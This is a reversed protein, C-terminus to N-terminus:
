ASGRLSLRLLDAMEQAESKRPASRWDAHAINGSGIAVLTRALQRPANLPGSLVVFQSENESILMYSPTSAAYKLASGLDTFDQYDTYFTKAIISIQSKYSFLLAHAHFCHADHQDGDTRCVPVKGHETMLLPGRVRELSERLATLNAVSDPDTAAMDAMSQTHQYAVLMAYTPTIPGLGVMSYGSANTAVVLAPDPDCLFCRDRDM